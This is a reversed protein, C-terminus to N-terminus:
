FQFLLKERLNKARVIECIGLLIRILKIHINLLADSSRELDSHALFALEFQTLFTVKFYLAYAAIAVIPFRRQLRRRDIVM